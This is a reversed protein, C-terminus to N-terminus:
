RAKGRTEAKEPLQRKEEWSIVESWVKDKSQEQAIEILSQQRYQIEKVGGEFRIM